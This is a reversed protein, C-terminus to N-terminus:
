HHCGEATWQYPAGNLHCHRGLSLELSLETLSHQRMEKEAFAVLALMLGEHYPSVFHYGKMTYFYANHFFEPRCLLAARSHKRALDSLLSHFEKACGLGPYDQGPLQPRSSSFAKAPNQLRLWEVVSIELSAPLYRPLFHKAELEHYHVTFDTPSFLKRRM